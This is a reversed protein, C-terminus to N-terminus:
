VRWIILPKCLIEMVAMWKKKAKGPKLQKLPQPYNWCLSLVFLQWYCRQKTIRAPWCSTWHSTYGPTSLHPCCCLDGQLSPAPGEAQTYTCFAIRCYIDALVGTAPVTHAWNILSGRLCPPMFTLNAPCAALVHQPEASKRTSRRFLQKSVASLLYSPTLISKLVPLLMFALCPTLKRTKLAEVIFYILQLGTFFLVWCAQCPNIQKASKLYELNKHDTFM